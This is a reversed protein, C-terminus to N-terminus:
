VVVVKDGEGSALLCVGNDGAVVVEGCQLQVIQRDQRWGM